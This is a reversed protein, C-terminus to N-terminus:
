LCLGVRNYHMFSGAILKEVIDLNLYKVQEQLSESIGVEFIKNVHLLSCVSKLFSAWDTSTCISSPSNFKKLIYPIDKVSKLTERLSVTLEESCLFFSIANLRSNLNELDLIPRLFWNRSCSLGIIWSRM